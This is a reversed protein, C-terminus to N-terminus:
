GVILTRFSFTFRANQHNHLRYFVLNLVAEETDDCTATHVAAIEQVHIRFQTKGVLFNELCIRIEAAVEMPHIFGISALIHLTHKYCKREIIVQELLVREGPVIGSVHRIRAQQAEGLLIDLLSCHCLVEEAPHCEISGFRVVLRYCPRHEGSDPPAVDSDPIDVFALIGRLRLQLVKEPLRICDPSECMEGQTTQEASHRIQIM